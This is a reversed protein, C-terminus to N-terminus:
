RSGLATETGLDLIHRQRRSSRPRRFSPRPPRPRRSRRSLRQHTELLRSHRYLLPLTLKFCYSLFLSSLVFREPCRSAIRLLSRRYRSSTYYPRTRETFQVTSPFFPDAAFFPSLLLTLRVERILELQSNVGHCPTRLEHSVQSVQLFFVILPRLLPPVLPFCVCSLWSRGIRRV